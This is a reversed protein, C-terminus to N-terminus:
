YSLKFLEDSVASPSLIGVDSFILTIYDPPTFDWKHDLYEDNDVYESCLATPIVLPVLHQRLTHPAVTHSTSTPSSSSSLATTDGDGGGGGGSSTLKKEEEAAAAAEQRHEQEATAIRSQILSTVNDEIDQQHFIFQRCFKFSESLVYMPKNFAKAVIGLQYTGVKNIIGGNEVVAEAGVLVLDVTALIHAVMSDVIMTVPINHNKLQAALVYGECEPRSETIIVRFRKGQSAANILASTVVHSYSHILIIQGDRLFSNVSKHIIKHSQAVSKAINRSNARITPEIDQQGETDGRTVVSSYIKCANEVSMSGPFTHVLTQTLEPLTSTFLQSLSAIKIQQIMHDMTQIAGIGLSLGPNTQSWNIFYERATKSLSKSSTDM